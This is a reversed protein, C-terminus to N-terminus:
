IVVSTKGVTTVGVRVMLTLRAGPVAPSRARIAELV